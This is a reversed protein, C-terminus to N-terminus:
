GIIQTVLTYWGLCYNPLGIFVLYVLLKANQIMQVHTALAALTYWHKAVL